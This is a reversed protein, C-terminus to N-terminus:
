RAARELRDLRDIRDADGVPSGDAVVAALEALLDDLRAVVADSSPLEVPEIPEVVRVVSM